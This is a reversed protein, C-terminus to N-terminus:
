LEERLFSFVTLIYVLKWYFQMTENQEKLVQISFPIPSVMKM